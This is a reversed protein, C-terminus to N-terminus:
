LKCHFRGGALRRFSAADAAAKWLRFKARQPLTPAIRFAAYVLIIAAVMRSATDASSSGGENPCARKLGTVRLEVALVALEKDVDVVERTQRTFTALPRLDDHHAFFQTVLTESVKKVFLDDQFPRFVPLERGVRPLVSVDFLLEVVNEDANAADSSRRTGLDLRHQIKTRHQDMVEESVINSVFRV